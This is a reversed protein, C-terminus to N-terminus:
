QEGGLADQQRRAAEQRAVEELFPIETMHKIQVQRRLSLQLSSQLSPPLPPGHLPLNHRPGHSESLNRYPMDMDMPLKSVKFVDMITPKYIPLYLAALARM